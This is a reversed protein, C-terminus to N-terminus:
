AMSVCMSVCVHMCVCVHACTCVYLQMGVCLCTHVQMCSCVHTHVQMCVCLGGSAPRLASVQEPDRAPQPAARLAQCQPGGGQLGGTHVQRPRGRLSAQVQTPCGKRSRPRTHLVVVDCSLCAPARGADPLLLKPLCAGSAWAWTFRELSSNDRTVGCVVDGASTVTVRPRRTGILPQLHHFDNAFRRRM